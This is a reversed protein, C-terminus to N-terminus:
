WSVHRSSVTARSLTRFIVNNMFKSRSTRRSRGRQRIRMQCPGHLEVWFHRKRHKILAQKLLFPGQSKGVLKVVKKFQTDSFKSFDTTVDGSEREKNSMEAVVKQLYPSLVNAIEYVWGLGHCRILPVPVTPFSAL